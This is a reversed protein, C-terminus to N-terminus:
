RGRAGSCGGLGVREEEARRLGMVATRRRGGARGEAPLGGGATELGGLVVPPYGSTEEHEEKGKGEGGAVGRGSNPRVRAGV